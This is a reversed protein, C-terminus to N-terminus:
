YLLQSNATLDLCTLTSNAPIRYQPSESSESIQCWLSSPKLWCNPNNNWSKAREQVIWESPQAQDQLEEKRLPGGAKCWIIREWWKSLLEQIKRLSLLLKLDENKHKFPSKSVRNNLSFDEALNPTDHFRIKVALMSCSHANVWQSKYKGDELVGKAQSVSSGRQRTQAWKM